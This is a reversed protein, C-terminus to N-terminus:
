AFQGLTSQFGAEAKAPLATEGLPTRWVAGALSSGITPSYISGYECTVDMLLARSAAHKLVPAKFAWTRGAGFGRLHDSTSGLLDDADNYLEFEVKVWDLDGASRNTVDGMIYRVGFLGPQWHLHAPEVPYKEIPVSRKRGTEEALTEMRCMPCLLIEGERFIPYRFESACFHCRSSADQAAAALSVPSKRSRGTNSTIRVAQRFPSSM